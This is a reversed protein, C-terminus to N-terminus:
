CNNGSYVFTTIQVTPLVLMAVQKGDRAWLEGSVMWPPQQGEECGSELVVCNGSNEGGGNQQSNKDAYGPSRYTAGDISLSCLPQTVLRVCPIVGCLNM